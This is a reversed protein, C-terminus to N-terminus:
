SCLRISHQVLGSGAVQSSAERGALSAVFNASDLAIMGFECPVRDRLQYVHVDKRFTAVYIAFCVERNCTVVEGFLLM